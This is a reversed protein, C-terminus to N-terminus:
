LTHSEGLIVIVVIVLVILCVTLVTGLNVQGLQNRRNFFRKM